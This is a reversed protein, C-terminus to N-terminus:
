DRDQDAIGRSPLGVCQGPDHALLEALVEFYGDDDLVLRPALPMIAACAAARASGSPYVM